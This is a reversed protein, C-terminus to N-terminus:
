TQTVNTIIRLELSEHLQRLEEREREKERERERERQKEREGCRM